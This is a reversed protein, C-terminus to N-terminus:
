VSAKGRGPPSPPCAVRSKRRARMYMLSKEIRVLGEVSGREYGGERGGGRRCLVGWM